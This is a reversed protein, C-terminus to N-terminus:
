DAFGIVSVEITEGTKQDVYTDRTMWGRDSTQAPHAEAAKQAAEAKPVPKPRSAQSEPASATTEAVMEVPAKPVEAGPGLAAGLFVGGILLLNM